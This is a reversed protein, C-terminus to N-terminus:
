CSEVRRVHVVHLVMTWFVDLLRDFLQELSREFFGEDRLVHFLLGIEEADALQNAEVPLGSGALCVGDLGTVQLERTIVLSDDGRRRNRQEDKKVRWTGRPEKERMTDVCVYM